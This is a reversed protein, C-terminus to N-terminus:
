SIAGSWLWNSLFDGMFRFLCAGTNLAVLGTALALLGAKMRRKM